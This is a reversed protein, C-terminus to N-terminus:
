FSLKLTVIEFPRLELSISNNDCPIQDLIDELLNTRHVDKVLLTSNLKASVHSGHSEFLRLIIDESDEAQKVTDIILAPHDVSFFSRAEGAPLSSSRLHLPQNFAAAAPIVGGLQPGGSHPFLGYRFTHSGRDAYPDPWVPSRLLSLRMVNTHCAYGYKSDNLLSVGFDPESLDAWRHASVEFQAWDWSTNFHTPRRVHGFQIEYTAHDSRLALPFEVKLFKQEEQWKCCNVFELM